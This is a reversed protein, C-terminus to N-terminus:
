TPFEIRLDCAAELGHSSAVCMSGMKLGCVFKAVVLGFVINDYLSCCAQRGMLIESQCIGAVFGYDRTGNLVLGFM